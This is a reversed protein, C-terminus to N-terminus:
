AAVVGGVNSVIRDFTLVRASVEEVFADIGNVRNIVNNVEYVVKIVSQVGDRSSMPSMANPEATPPRQAAPAPAKPVTVAPTTTYRGQSSASDNASTGPLYAASCPALARM